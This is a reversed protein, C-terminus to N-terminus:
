SSIGPYRRFRVFKFLTREGDASPESDRETTAAVCVVERRQLRRVLEFTLVFEGQVLAHTTDIPLQRECADALEAIRAETADAPVQPFPLDEIRTALALAAETQHRDWM